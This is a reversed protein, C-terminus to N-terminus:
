SAKDFWGNLAGVFAIAGFGVILLAAVSPGIKRSSFLNCFAGLTILLVPGAFFQGAVYALQYRNAQVAALANATFQLGSLAL